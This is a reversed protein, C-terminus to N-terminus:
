GSFVECLFKRLQSITKSMQDASLNKLDDLYSRMLVLLDEKAKDLSDASSYLYPQGFVEVFAEDDTERCWVFFPRGYSKDTSPYALQVEFGEKLLEKITKEEAFDIVDLSLVGASFDVPPASQKSPLRRGERDQWAAKRYGKSKEIWEEFKKLIVRAPETRDLFDSFLKLDREPIDGESFVASYGTLLAPYESERLWRAFSIGDRNDGTEHPGPLNIDTVVLDFCPLARVARIAADSDEVAIVPGSSMQRLLNAKEARNIPQDEVLLVSAMTKGLKDAELCGFEIKDSRAV